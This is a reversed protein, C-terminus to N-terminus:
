PAPSLSLSKLAKDATFWPEPEPGSLDALDAADSYNSFREISGTRTKRIGPSETAIANRLKCSRRRPDFVEEGPCLFTLILWLPKLPREFHSLKSYYLIRRCCCDFLFCFVHIRWENIQLFTSNLLGSCESPLEVLEFPFVKTGVLPEQGEHIM